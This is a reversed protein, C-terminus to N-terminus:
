RAVRQFDINRLEIAKVSTSIFRLWANAPADAGSNWLATYRHWDTGIRDFSADQEGHDYGLGAYLDVSLVATTGTPARADFTASYETNKELKIPLMAASYPAPNALVIQTGSATANELTWARTDQTQGIPKVPSAGREATVIAPAQARVWASLTWGVATFVFAISLLVVRTRVRTHRLREVCLWAGSAYLIMLSPVGYRTEVMYLSNSALMCTLAALTIIYLAQWHPNRMAPRFALALGLFGCAAVFLNLIAAAPYYTPALTTNYPFPLDQDLLNFTHLAITAVGRGPHSLYWAGPADVRGADPGRFPNIYIVRPDNSTPLHSTSYKINQIGLWANSSSIPDVVFPTPTRYFRLNNLFEPTLPLAGFFVVIGAAAAIRRRNPRYLHAAVGLAVAWVPTLCLNSPRIMVALALLFSGAAIAPLRRGGPSILWICVSLFLITASFSSSESLVYSPYILLLPNTLVSLFLIRRVRPPANMTRLAQRLALAAGIHLGLQFELAVIRLPISTAASLRMLGSLIWPWAYTRLHSLEFKSFLGNKLIDTAARVYGAADHLIPLERGAIFYAHAIAAAVLIGIVQWSPWRQESAAGASIKPITKQSPPIPPPGGNRGEIFALARESQGEYRCLIFLLILAVVTAALGAPVSWPHYSMVLTHIGAGEVFVGRLFGNVPYIPTTKGDVEARWGPFWSDAVVLFSRGDTRLTFKLESNRVERGLIEGGALNVRESIGEVLAETAVDFGPDGELVARAEHEDKCPRLTRVFRFRPQALRNRFIRIGDAGTYVPTYLSPESAGSEADRPVLAIQVNGIEVSTTSQTYLRVSAQGPADPGSNILAIQQTPGAPLQSYIKYQAAYDYGPGYLNVLFPHTIGAPAATEFTIRYLTSKAFPIEVMLMSVVSGDPSQLRYKGPGVAVAHDTVISGTIPTMPGARVARARGLVGAIEESSTILYQAGAAALANPQNLNQIPASGNLGFDTVAVYRKLWMPSYDNVASWGYTMNLLPYTYVTEPDIPYIRYLERDFKQGQLFATEPRAEPHGISTTSPRGYLTSYPVYMDAAIVIPIAALVWGRRRRLFQVLAISLALFIFPYVLTPASPELNAEILRKAAGFTRFPNLRLGDVTQGGASSLFFIGARAVQSLVYAGVFVSLLIVTAHALARRFRHAASNEARIALDLGIAALMAVALHIELLHRTPARFLNYIPIHFLLANLPTWQGIILALGAVVVAAWFVVDRSRRRGYGYAFFGLALPLLGIYPYVEVFNFQPSYTPVGFLGGLINPIVCALIHYPPFYDESFMQYTLKARTMFPLVEAVALLQLSSLLIALFGSIGLTAVTARLASLWRLEGKFRFLTYAATLMLSYVTVQPFGGLISMSLVTALFGLERPRQSAAYRDVFLLMGPLWVATSMMAQHGMHASLFGSFMFIMGGTASAYQSLGRNNALLYFLLGALAYHTLIFLNYGFADPFVAMAVLAPLYFPQFQTNAFSIKGLQVFPNWASLGTAFLKSPFGAKLGDGEGLLTTFLNM